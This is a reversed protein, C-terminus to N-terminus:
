AWQFIFIIYYVETWGGYIRPVVMFVVSGSNRFMVSTEWYLAGGDVGRLDM